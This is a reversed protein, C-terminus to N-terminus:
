PKKIEKLIDELESISIDKERAFFSLMNAFSGNFYGKVLQKVSQSSYAERAVAPRYLHSKGISEVTVFEKELLIKLITSATNYHPKPDPLAEIIDKTFGRGITWLAQMIQEEARTLSKFATM